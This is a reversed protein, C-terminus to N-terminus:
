QKSREMVDLLVLRSIATVIEPPLGFIWNRKPTPAITPYRAEAWNRLRYYPRSSKQDGKDDKGGSKPHRIGRIKDKKSWDTGKHKGLVVFGADVVGESRRAKTPPPPVRELLRQREVDGFQYMEFVSTNLLTRGKIHKAFYPVLNVLSIAEVTVTIRLDPSNVESVSRYLRGTDALPLLRDVKAEITRVSRNQAGIRNVERTFVAQPVTIRNESKQQMYRFHRADHQVVITAVTMVTESSIGKAGKKVEVSLRALIFAAKRAGVVQVRIAM